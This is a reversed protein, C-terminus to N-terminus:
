FLVHRFLRRVTLLTVRHNVPGSNIVTMVTTGDEHHGFNTPYGHIELPLEQRLAHDIADRHTEHDTEALFLMLRPGWDHDMSQPTDLGLVESGSGILAASYTLDPFSQALIPEVAQEYLLQSLDLGKIFHHNALAVTM